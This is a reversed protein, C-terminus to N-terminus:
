CCDLDTAEFALNFLDDELDCVCSRNGVLLALSSRVRRIGDAGACSHTSCAWNLFKLLDCIDERCSECTIRASFPLRIKLPRARLRVPEIARGAAGGDAGSDARRRGARRKTEVQLYKHMRNNRAGPRTKNGRKNVPADDSKAVKGPAGRGTQLYIGNVELFLNSVNSVNTQFKLAMIRQRETLGTLDSREYVSSYPIYPPLAERRRRRRRPQPPARCCAAACGEQAGSYAADFSLPSSLYTRIGDRLIM